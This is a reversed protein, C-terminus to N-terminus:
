HHHGGVGHAHRHELEEKTAERISDIKIDFQLTKGAFPHNFDVDVMFRGSKIVTVAKAGKETQVQVVLGPKLKKPASILHKVPVRQISNERRVGYAKEPPLVVCANDGAELGTLAEELAPLLNRHGHLYALPVGESNDELDQGDKETLRYFLTVVRDNQINM